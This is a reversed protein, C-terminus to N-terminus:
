ENYTEERKSWIPKSDIEKIGHAQAHCPFCLWITPSNRRGGQSQHFHTHHQVLGRWDGRKGCLECLLPKNKPKM